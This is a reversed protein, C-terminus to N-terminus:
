RVSCLQSISKLLFHLHQPALSKQPGPLHWSVSRAALPSCSSPGSFAQLFVALSPLLSLLRSYVPLAAQSYARCRQSQELWRRQLALPRSWRSAFIGQAPSIADNGSFYRETRLDSGAGFLARIQEESGRLLSTWCFPALDMCRVMQLPQAASFLALIERFNVEWNSHDGVGRRAPSIRIEM